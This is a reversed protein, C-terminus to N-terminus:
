RTAAVGDMSSVARVLVEPAVAFITIVRIRSVGAIAAITRSERGSARCHNRPGPAASGGSGAPALIGDVARAALTRM